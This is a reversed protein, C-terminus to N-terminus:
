AGRELVDPSGPLVDWASGYREYQSRRVPELDPMREEHVWSERWCVKYLKGMRTQKEALVHVFEHNPSVPTPGCGIPKEEPPSM